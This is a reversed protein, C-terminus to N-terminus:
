APTQEAPADTTHGLSWHLLAPVHAGPVPRQEAMTGFALPVEHSLSALTQVCSVQWAPTQEAPGVSVQLVSWHWVMPAHTAAVPQGAGTAFLLPVAHSRSPLRQVWSVQWLPVHLAPDDTTHVPSWHWLAPVHAGAVPTQEAGVLLVL